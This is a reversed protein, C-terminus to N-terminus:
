NSLTSPDMGEAGTYAQPTFPKPEELPTVRPRANAREQAMWERLQDEESSTCGVMLVSSMLALSLPNLFVARM